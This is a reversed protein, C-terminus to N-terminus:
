SIHSDSVDSASKDHGSVLAVHRESLIVLNQGKSMGPFRKGALTDSYNVAIERGCDLFVAACQRNSRIDDIINFASSSIYNDYSCLGVHARKDRM